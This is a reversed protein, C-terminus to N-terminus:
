CLRITLFHVQITISHPIGERHPSREGTGVVCYHWHCVKQIYTRIGERSARPPVHQTSASRGLEGGYTAFRVPAPM